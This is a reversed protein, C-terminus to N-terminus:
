RARGTRAMSKKEPGGRKMEKRPGEGTPPPDVKDARGGPRFGRLRNARTHTLGTVGGALWARWLRIEVLGWAALLGAWGGVYRAGGWCWGYGFALGWHRIVGSFFTVKIVFPRNVRFATWRRARFAESSRPYLLATHLAFGIGRWGRPKGSPPGLRARRGRVARGPKAPKASSNSRDHRVLAGGSARNRAQAESWADHRGGRQPTRIRAPSQLRQHRRSSAPPGRHGCREPGKPPGLSGAPRARGPNGGRRAGFDRVPACAGTGRWGPPTRPAVGAALSSRSALTAKPKSPPRYRCSGRLPTKKKPGACCMM